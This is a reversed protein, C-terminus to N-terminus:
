GAGHGMADATYRGVGLVMARGLDGLDDVDQRLTALMGTVERAGAEFHADRSRVGFRPDFAEVSWAAYTTTGTGQADAVFAAGGEPVQALAEDLDDGTLAPLDACVAAVAHGPWRRAAELAAQVLSANLDGTVGDPLTACGDDAAVSAFAADDTVVMVEAVCAASRAASLTDRAFASALATRLDDPLDALRSKGQAPPKVPVLVVFSRPDPSVSM